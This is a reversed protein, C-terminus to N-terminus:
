KGCCEKGRTLYMVSLLCWAPQCAEKGMDTPVPESVAVKAVVSKGGLGM